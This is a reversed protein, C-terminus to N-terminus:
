TSSEGPWGCTLGKNQEALYGLLPQFYEIIASADMNRTGTLKELTDQWPQAAGAQLMAMLKEGAAKNGYIDCQSLPGQYGSADCLAKHFQFQLIFSLFYRTYPTNGAVHYKAGPDFDDAARAMPAAVGQYKARLAWWSDNYQDPKLNGSFVQWRWQDVLKGWPLFVIKDLALKMQSNILARQDTQVTKVLGIKKLHMPSLSLTITDGIAEHFGDHAGSQFLPTQQQYMLYYYIHGLEHHITTLQEETPEICQKIRVDTISLDMDWASAHCQVDRDRPQVLLSKQWFSDPLKPMGLSTYFDEAVRTMKDAIASDTAHAMDAQQIASPKGKFTALRQLYDQERLAKLSSSVDLDAIGKYPELLPYLNSWQQAWMNGLLHAPILGVKPVVAEGYKQNLKNRVSCHLQEYLPQVQSWLREVEKDFEAPTMDYGGRWLEGTDAFGVEQAGENMLEVFRAYDTKIPKATAHWGAWAAAIEAPSNKLETNDVIKEIDQLALCQENGAIDKRCWKAAGYNAEMKAAIQALEARKAPDNPAPMSSGLKILRMSRATDPQLGTVDNYRKAEEIIRSNFELGQETAAASLRQTDDTIYTAAVWAAAGWLPRKALLEANVDAIFKDASIATLPATASDSAGWAAVGAVLLVLGAMANRM